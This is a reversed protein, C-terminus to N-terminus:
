LFQVFWLENNGIDIVSVAILGCLRYCNGMFWIGIWKKREVAMNRAFLMMICTTFNYRTAFVFCNHMSITAYFYSIWKIAQDFYKIIKKPLSDGKEKQVRLFIELAVWYRCQITIAVEREGMKNVNCLLPKQSCLVKLGREQFTEKLKNFCTLKVLRTQIYIDFM